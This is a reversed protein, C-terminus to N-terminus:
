HEKTDEVEDDIENTLEEGPGVLPDVGLAEPLNEDPAAVPEHPAAATEEHEKDTSEAEAAEPEDIDEIPEVASESEGAEEPEPSAGNGETARREEAMLLDAVERQVAEIEDLKVGPDAVIFVDGTGVQEYFLM